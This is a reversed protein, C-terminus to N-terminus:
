LGRVLAFAIRIVQVRWSDGFALDNAMHSQCNECSGKEDKVDVYGSTLLCKRMIWIIL